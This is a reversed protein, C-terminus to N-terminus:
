SAAELGNFVAELVTAQDSAVPFIDDIQFLDAHEAFFVVAVYKVETVFLSRWDGYGLGIDVGDEAVECLLLRQHIRQFLLM